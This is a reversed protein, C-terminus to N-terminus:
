LRWRDRMTRIVIDPGRRGSAPVFVVRIRVLRPVAQGSWQRQWSSTADDWYSMELREVDGLLTAHGTPIPQRPNRYNPVWQLELQHTASVTLTVLADRTGMAVAGEPLTSRFTMARPMGIFVPPQGSVGGADLRAIVNRLTRDTADLDGNITLTRIQAQWTRVGLRLAEVLGTMLLGLVVLAVLTELLTFGQQGKATM